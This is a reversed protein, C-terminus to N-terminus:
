EEKFFNMKKCSSVLAYTASCSSWEECAVKICTPMIFHSLQVRDVRCRMYCVCVCVCVCVCTYINYMYANTHTQICICICTDRSSISIVFAREKDREGDRERECVCVRERVCVCVNVCAPVLLVINSVLLFPCDSLAASV